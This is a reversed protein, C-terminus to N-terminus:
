VRDPGAQRSRSRQSSRHAMAKRNSPPDLAPARADLEALVARAIEAPTAPTAGAAQRSALFLEYVRVALLALQVPNDPLAAEPFASRHERLFRGAARVAAHETADAENPHDFRWARVRETLESNTGRQDPEVGAAAFVRCDFDRCTQPRDDYISCKGDALMPCRGEPDYGLLMHGEPLGPAAFLLRKPIRALANTEHPAIHIFLSAQCCGTCAGCPVDAGIVRLKRARHTARLWESFPGAGIQGPQAAAPSAKEETLPLRGRL